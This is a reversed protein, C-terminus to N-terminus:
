AALRFGSFAWRQHPYFFNRYTIRAHGPPTVCSAGRLVMQNVMFKGNYEGITGPDAKFGPYPTYASQTWEWVDGTMQLLKGDEADGAPMPRLFGSALCNPRRDEGNTAINRRAAIEWEAETPLRKGAWAAYAAPEYFSVHCVPADHYLPCVGAFTFENWAGDDGPRWYLPATWHEANVM